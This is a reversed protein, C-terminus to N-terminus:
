SSIHLCRSFSGMKIIRGLIMTWFRILDCIRSPVVHAAKEAEKLDIKCCTCKFHTSSMAIHPYRIRFVGELVDLGGGDEPADRVADCPLRSWVWFGSVAAM